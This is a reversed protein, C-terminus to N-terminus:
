SLSSCGEDLVAAWSDALFVALRNLFSDRSRDEAVQGVSDPGSRSQPLTEAIVLPLASNMRTKPQWTYVCLSGCCSELTTMRPLDQCKNRM